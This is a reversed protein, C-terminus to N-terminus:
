INKITSSKLSEPSQILWREPSDSELENYWNKEGEKYVQPTFKPM